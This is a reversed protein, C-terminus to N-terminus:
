NIIKAGSRTVITCVDKAIQGADGEGELATGSSIDGSQRPWLAWDQRTAGPTFGLNLEWSAQKFAELNNKIAKDSKDDSLRMITIACQANSAFQALVKGHFGRVEAVHGPVKCAANIKMARDCLEFQGCQFTKLLHQSSKLEGEAWGCSYDAAGIDRPENLMLVPEASAGLAWCCLMAVMLTQRM